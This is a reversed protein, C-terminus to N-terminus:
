GEKAPAKAMAPASAPPQAGGLVAVIFAVAAAETKFNERPILKWNEEDTDDRMVSAIVGQEQWDISEEQSAAEDPPIQCRTKLLVIPRYSVVGDQQMRKVAALGLYPPSMAKGFKYAPVAESGVQVTSEPLGLLFAEEEASLGDVTIEATGSKFSAPEIESLKNNAYYANDETTEVELSMEKARALERVGSYTVAGANETYQAVHIRSFGTTVM